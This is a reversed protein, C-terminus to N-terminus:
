TALTRRDPASDLSAGAPSRSIFPARPLLIQYRPFSLQPTPPYVAEDLHITVSASESGRRGNGVSMRARARAHAGRVDRHFRAARTTRTLVHSELDEGHARAGRGGSWLIRSRTLPSHHPATSRVRSTNIGSRARAHFQTPRSLPPELRRCPTFLQCRPETTPLDM